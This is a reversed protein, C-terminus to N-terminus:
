ANSIVGRDRLTRVARGVAQESPYLELRVALVRLQPLLMAGNGYRYLLYLLDHHAECLMQKEESTSM